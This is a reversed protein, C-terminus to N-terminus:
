FGKGGAMVAAKRMLKLFSNRGLLNIMSLNFYRTVVDFGTRLNAIKLGGGGLVQLVRGPPEPTYARSIGTLHASDPKSKVALSSNLVFDETPLM